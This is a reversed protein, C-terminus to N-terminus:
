DEKIIVVEFPIEAVDSFSGQESEKIKIKFLYMGGGVINVGPINVITRIRVKGEEFAFPFEAKQMLEGQNDFFEVGIVAEPVISTDLNRWLSVIQVPFNIPLKNGFNPNKSRFAKAGETSVNVQVQEIVNQLSINNSDKDVISSQCIVSWAHKINNIKKM